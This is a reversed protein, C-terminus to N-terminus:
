IKVVKCWYGMQENKLNAQDVPIFEELGAMKAMVRERNRYNGPVGLLIEETKEESKEELNDKQQKRRIMLLHHYRAYAHLLFPNGLIKWEEMDLLQLDQPELRVSDIISEWTFPMLRPYTRFILDINSVANEWSEMDSMKLPEELNMQMKEFNNNLSECEEPKQYMYEVEDVPLPTKIKEAEDVETALNGPNEELKKDIFDKGPEEREWIDGDKSISYKEDERMQQPLEERNSKDYNKDYNKDNSIDNSKEYSKDYSGDKDMKVGDNGVANRHEYDMSNIWTVQGCGIEEDTWMSGLYHKESETEDEMWCLVGGLTDLSPCVEKLLDSMKGKYLFEGQGMSLECSGFQMGYWTQENKWFFAVILRGDTNKYGCVSIGLRLRGGRTEVKIYGCNKGRVNHDVEYLYSIKRQYGDM